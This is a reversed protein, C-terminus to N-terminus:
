WPWAFLAKRSPPNEGSTLSPTSFWFMKNIAFSEHSVAGPPFGFVTSLNSHNAFLRQMTTFPKKLVMTVENPLSNGYSSLQMVGCKTSNTPFQLVQTGSVGIIALWLPSLEKWGGRLNAVAKHIVSWIFTAEKQAKYKHWIINWSPLTSPPVEM